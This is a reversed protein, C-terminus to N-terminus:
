TRGGYHPMSELSLPLLKVKKGELVKKYEFIREVTHLWELFEDPDLKSKFEPIEVRFDNSNTPWREEKREERFPEGESSSSLPDSTAEEEEGQTSSNPSAHMKQKQKMFEGLQKRM